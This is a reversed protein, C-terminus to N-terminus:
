RSLLRPLMLSEGGSLLAIEFRGRLRAITTAPTRRVSPTSIEFCNCGEISRSSHWSQGFLGSTHAAIAFYPVLRATWDRRGPGSRAGKAQMRMPTVGCTARGFISLKTCALAKPRFGPFAVV